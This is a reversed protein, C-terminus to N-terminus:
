RRRLRAQVAVGRVFTPVGATGQQVIEEEFRSRAAGQVVEDKRVVHRRGDGFDGAETRQWGVRDYFSEVAQKTARSDTTEIVSRVM